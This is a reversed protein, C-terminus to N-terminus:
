AAPMRRLISDRFPTFVTAVGALVGVSNALADAVDMQRTTTLWGQALELAIGLAVLGVGARMVARRPAFLQVAAMALLCYAGFHELKDGGAPVQPLLMAPVLSTAVVAGIACWWAALWRRPHRLPKLASAGIM